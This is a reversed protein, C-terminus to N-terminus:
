IIFAVHFYPADYLQPPSGVNVCGLACSTTTPATWPTNTGLAGGQAGTSAAYTTVYDASALATSFNCTFVGGSNKVASTIGMGKRLTGSALNYNAYAAVQSTIPGAPGTPGPNGQPGQAGTPGTIALGQPGQPGTISL